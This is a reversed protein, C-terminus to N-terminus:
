FGALENKLEADQPFFILKSLTYDISYINLRKELDRFEFMEPYYKEYWEILKKYDKPDTDKEMKLAVFKKPNQAMRRVFALPYDLSAIETREFDLMGVIRNGQILFNDFHLDWYSLGMKEQSLSGRNDKLFREIGSIKKPSLVSTQSLQTLKNVIESCMHEQWSTSISIQFEQAFAQYPTEHIIKLMACIQEIFHRRQDVSALHWLSNLTEGEIKPYVFFLRNDLDKASGSYVIKPTPIKDQLLKCLYIEKKLNTSEEKEKVIKLMYKENICYVDNSFGIELKRISVAVALGAQEFIKKIDPYKM